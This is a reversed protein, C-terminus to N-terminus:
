DENALFDVGDYGLANALRLMAQYEYICYRHMLWTLADGSDDCLDVTCHYHTSKVVARIYCHPCEIDGGDLLAGSHAAAARIARQSSAIRRLAWSPILRSQKAPEAPAPPIQCDPCAVDEGAACGHCDAHCAPDPSTAPVARRYLRCM